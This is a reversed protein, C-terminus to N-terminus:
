RWASLVAKVVTDGKQIDNHGGWSTEIHRIRGGDIERIVKDTAVTAIIRRDDGCAIDFLERSHLYSIEWDNTAHVLTFTFSTRMTLRSLRRFREASNFESRLCKRIFFDAVNPFLNLPGLLPLVGAMRYRGVLKRLSTFAAITVIGALPEDPHMEHYRTAVGIAIATGLSQSVLLIRSPEVHATNIVWNLAAIGDTIVGDETPTGSSYGWGRYDIAVLHTNRNAATLLRYTDLRLVQGIHSGTGHVLTLPSTSDPTCYIIVKASKDKQLVKLHEDKRGEVEKDIPLM